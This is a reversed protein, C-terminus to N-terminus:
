ENILDDSQFVSHGLKEMLPNKKLDIEIHKIGGTAKALREAFPFTLLKAFVGHVLPTIVQRQSITNM